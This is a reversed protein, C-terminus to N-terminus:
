QKQDFWGFLDEDAPEDVGAVLSDAASEEKKAGSVRGTELSYYADTTIAFLMDQLSKTDSSIKPLDFSQMSIRLRDIADRLARHQDPDMQDGLDRLTREATDIEINAKNRTTSEERRRGDEEAYVAASSFVFISFIAVLFSIKGIQNNKQKNQLM